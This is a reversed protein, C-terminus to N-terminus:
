WRHMVVMLIERGRGEGKERVELQDAIARQRSSESGWVWVKMGFARAYEIV